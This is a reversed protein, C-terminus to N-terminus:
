IYNLYTETYMKKLNFHNFVKQKAQQGLMKMQKENQLLACIVGALEHSNAPLVIMGTEGPSIIERVGGVDTAVVPLGAAMAELIAFPFGEALSPLVFLDLSQLILPIDDRYGLVSFSNEMQKQQIQSILKTRLEGDGILVFHSEPYKKVVTEAAEILYFHGKQAHLRGVTGILIKEPPLGLQKRSDKKSITCNLSAQNVGNYIKLLKKPRVSFYDQFQLRNKESVVIIKNIQWYWIRILHNALRTMIPNKKKYPMVLHVTAIQRTCGSFWAAILALKDGAPCGFNFHIVDAQIFIKRYQIFKALSFKSQRGFRFVRINKSECERLWNTLEPSDCAVLTIEYLDRDANEMLLQLYKEAGGFEKGSNFYVLKKKREGSKFFLKM